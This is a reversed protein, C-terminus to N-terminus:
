QSQKTLTLTHSAGGTVSDTMTGTFLANTACSSFNIVVNGTISSNPAVNGVVEPIATSVVPTCAAGATQTLKFVKITVGNGEALGSNTFKFSWIRANSPGSKGSLNDNVIPIATFKAVVSQPSNMAITTSASKANAVNSSWSSFAYGIAPKATLSVTSGANYFGGSVVSVTGGGAPSVNTTLQYQTTFTATATFTAGVGPVTINHTVTGGDSWNSFVYRTGAAGAQPSTTGIALSSGVSYQGSAPAVQPTGRSSVALGAPSTLLTVTAVQCGKLVFNEIQTSWNNTGQIPEYQQTYYYTCDDVPDVTLTAREDWEASTQAANGPNLLTENGLTNLPDSGARTAVYQSVPIQSSSLNYAVAINGARDTAISPIFRFNTDPAFTGAQYMYLDGGANLRVEYFRPATPAAPGNVPSAASGDTETTFLAAHDGYNRYPMRGTLRGAYADLLQATGPQPVCLGTFSYPTCSPPPVDTALIIPFSITSNQPDNWDVHFKWFDIGFVYADEAAFYAPAGSPPPTLGDLDSVVAGFYDTEMQVCQIAAGFGALMAARQLACFRDGEFTASSYMDFAMYYGDPWVGLKANEDIFSNNEYGGTQFSYRYWSGTADASTSVAVCQIYPAGSSMAHQSVVWRNAMKDFNVTAQGDNDNQCAGGFGSWITNGPVPGLLINGSAKDFVAFSDDVWQLYQTTGVAGTADSPSSAPTFSGQPGNFFNGVGALNFYGLTTAVGTGGNVLDPTVKDSLSDTKTGFEPRPTLTSGELSQGLHGMPPIDRHMRLGHKATPPPEINRLAKSRDHHVDTAVTITGYGPGSGPNRSQAVLRGTCTLGAIVLAIFRYIQFIRRDM